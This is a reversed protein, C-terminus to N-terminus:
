NYLYAHIQVLIYIRLNWLLCQESFCLVHISLKVQFYTRINLVQGKRLIFDHKFMKKFNLSFIIQLYLKYRVDKLSLFGPYSVCWLGACMLIWWLQRSKAGARSVTIFSIDSKRLMVVILSAYLLSPLFHRCLFVSM